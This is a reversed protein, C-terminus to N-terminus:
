LNGATPQSDLERCSSVQELLGGDSNPVNHVFYFIFGCDAGSGRNGCRKIHRDVYPNHVPLRGHNVGHHHSAAATPVHQQATPQVAM